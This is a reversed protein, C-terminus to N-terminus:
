YRRYDKLNSHQEESLVNILDLEEYFEVFIDVIQRLSLHFYYYEEYINDYWGDINYKKDILSWIRAISLLSPFGSTYITSIFESFVAVSYNEYETCMKDYYSCRITDNGDVRIFCPDDYGYDDSVMGTAYKFGQDNISISYISEHNIMSPLGVHKAIALEWNTLKIQNTLLYNVAIIKGARLLRIIHYPHMRQLHNRINVTSIANTHKCVSLFNYLNKNTHPRALSHLHTCVSVCRTNVSVYDCIIGCLEGIGFVVNAM